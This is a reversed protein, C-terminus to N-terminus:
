DYLAVIQDLPLRPRRRPDRARYGVTLIAHPTLEEPLELVRRVIDPCFLPACMWGADLGLAYAMLLMSQAAAGLSQVAMLEEAQRRDHDPYSDLVATYLCPIILVPAEIMRRRSGARRAAIVEPPDGDLALQQQWTEGMAEALAVKRERRTLVAFRWPQRGHPSPAWAGAELIQEVLEAAVPREDFHRVSARGRVIEALEPWTTRAAPPSSM